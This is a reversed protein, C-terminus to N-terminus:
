ISLDISLISPHMLNELRKIQASPGKHRPLQQQTTSCLPVVTGVHLIQNSLSATTRYDWAMLTLEASDRSVCDSSSIFERGGSLFLVDLTQTGARFVSEVQPVCVVSSHISAHIFPHMFPHILSHITFM